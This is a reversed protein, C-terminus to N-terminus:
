NTIGKKENNWRDYEEWTTCIKELKSFDDTHVYFIDTGVNFAVYYYERSDSKPVNVTIVGFPRSIQLSNSLKNYTHSIRHKDLVDELKIFRGNVNRKRNNSYKGM